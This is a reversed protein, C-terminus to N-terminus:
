RLIAPLCEDLRSHRFAYGTETLKAPIARVGSLLLEEGMQGFVWRIVFAPVPLFAPRSLTSALIRTFERNTVPHPSTVNVPGEIEEHQILHHVIPPIEEVAVWSMMQRGSGLRGGLGLRFVPLMRVLAGGHPSLVMGFRLHVVRIGADRAPQASAEWQRCVDALFGDGPVSHEDVVEEPPRPGYFGTASACLLLRPPHPLRALCRSLLTTSDIRSSKIARRYSTSWRKGAINAGALHIVLDVGAMEAPALRGQSPEWSIDESQRDGQSDPRVLRLVTHGAATLKKELASGILGHSGSILIRLAM